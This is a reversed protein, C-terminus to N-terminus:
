VRDTSGLSNPLIEDGIKAPRQQRNAGAGATQLHLSRTPATRFYAPRAKRGILVLEGHLGSRSSPSVSNPQRKIINANYGGCLRSRCEVVGPSHPPPTREQELLPTNSVIRSAFGAVSIEFRGLSRSFAPLRLVQEPGAQRPQRGV